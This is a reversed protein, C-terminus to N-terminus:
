ERPRVAYAHYLFLGILPFKEFFYTMWLAEYLFFLWVLAHLALTGAVRFKTPVQELPVQPLQPLNTLPIMLSLVQYGVLWPLCAFFSRFLLSRLMMLSLLLHIYQPLNNTMNTMIRDMGPSGRRKARPGFDLELGKLALWAQMADQGSAPEALGLVNCWTMQECLSNFMDKAADGSGEKTEKEETAPAAADEGETEKEEKKVAPAEAVADGQLLAQLKPGNQVICAGMFLAKARGVFDGSSAAAAPEDDKKEAKKEAKRDAQKSKQPAMKVCIRSKFWLLVL